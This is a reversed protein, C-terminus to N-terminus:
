GTANVYMIVQRKCANTEDLSLIKGALDAEIILADGSHCTGIVGIFVGHREIVGLVAGISCFIVFGGLGGSM